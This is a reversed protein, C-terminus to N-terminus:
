LNFVFSLRVRYNFTIYFEAIKYWCNTLWFYCRFDCISLANLSFLICDVGLYIPFDLSEIFLLLFDHDILLEM